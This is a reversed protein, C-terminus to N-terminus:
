RRTACGIATLQRRFDDPIQGDQGTPIDWTLVGDAGNIHKTYGIALEDCFRTPGEGWWKGLYTLAHFQAGDIFRSQPGWKNGLWLDNLEGATYDEYPTASAIPIRVGTGFAVLSDPNGAKAAEVFSRFNPADDHLFLKDAFYCGDFWWGSISKGWRTSWERIVAEWNQMGETLRDDVDHAALYAGPVIGTRSADWKPTFKLAELAHSYLAGPHTPLYAFMPVSFRALAAALDAILDRQSLRSPTGVLSDYYANPSCFYGSNQGITFIHYGAGTDAIRRALLDVDVSEARRNWDDIPVEVASVNSAFDALFHTMTGWKAAHFWDTNARTWQDTM